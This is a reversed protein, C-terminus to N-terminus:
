PPPSCCGRGRCCLTHAHGPLPRATGATSRPPGASRGRPETGPGLPPEPRQRGGGRQWPLAAAGAGPGAGPPHWGRCPSPPQLSEHCPQAGAFRSALIFSSAAWFLSPPSFHLPLLWLLFLGLFTPVAPLSAPDPRPELRGRDGSQAYLSPLYRLSPLLPPKHRSSHSTTIPAICSSTPLQPTRPAYPKAAPALPPETALRSNRWLGPAERRSLHISLM